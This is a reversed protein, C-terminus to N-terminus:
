DNGSFPDLREPFAPCLRSAPLVGAEDFFRMRGDWECRWVELAGAEFYLRKKEDIERRSNDPSIVEICIEPAPSFSARRGAARRREDSIWIIDPVRTGDSTKVGTEALPRGGPLLQRLLTFIEGAYEQHDSHPPPSMIIQNRANTEIKWYLDSPLIPQECLEEWTLAPERLATMVIKGESNVEIRYPLALLREDIEVDKIVM